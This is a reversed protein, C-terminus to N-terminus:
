GKILKQTFVVKDKQMVQIFYTGPKFDKGFKFSSGNVVQKTLLKGQVNTIRITTEVNSAPLNVIFAEKTPNPFVHVTASTTVANDTEDSSLAQYVYTGKATGMLVESSGDGKLDVWRLPTFTFADAKSQFNPKNDGSIIFAPRAATGVNKYYTTNIFLDPLGDHNWDHFSVNYFTTSSALDNFPDESGTVYAFAPQQATGKNMLYIENGQDDSILCDYDGDGDLDAFAPSAIGSTLFKVMSLPNNAASQKEFLPNNANGINKYYVMAGTAGEGVFCDYDGDGDIDIFYPIALANTAVGSLPNTSGNVQKFQPKKNTGDNRYFYIKAPHSNTYEGSFCDYDGDGDIDVFFPHSEKNSTVAFNKLPNNNHDVVFNNKQASANLSFFLISAACIKSAIPRIMEQKAFWKMCSANEYNQLFLATM